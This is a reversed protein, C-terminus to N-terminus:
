PHSDFVILKNLLRYDTCILNPGDKKNVVVVPIRLSFQEEDHNRSEGDGRARREELRTSGLSAMVDSRCCSEERLLVWPRWRNDDETLVGTNHLGIWFPYNFLNGFLRTIFNTMNSDRIIVLDGNKKQCVDRAEYWSKRLHSKNIASVCTEMSPTLLWGEECPLGKLTWCDRGIYGNACGSPCGGTSAFCAEQHDACNCDRECERGFKGVPCALDLCLLRDDEHAQLVWEEVLRHILAALIMGDSAVSPTENEDLWRWRNDDETLLGTNHLGIWFPLSSVDKLLTSIFNAMNSDRITVLDGGNQHCISRAQHWTKWHEPMYAKVCTQLSPTLKWGEGCLAAYQALYQDAQHPWVLGTTYNDHDLVCVRGKFIEAINVCFENFWCQRITSRLRGNDCIYPNHCKFLLETQAGNRYTVGQYYCGSFLYFSIPNRKNLFLFGVATKM